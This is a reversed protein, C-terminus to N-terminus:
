TKLSSKIVQKITFRLNKLLRNDKPLVALYQDNNSNYVQKFIPNILKLKYNLLYFKKILFVRELKVLLM